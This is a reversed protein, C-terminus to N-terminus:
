AAVWVVASRGSATKRVEGSQVILGAQQLEIRRPRQSSGQLGLERQLEDDTRGDVGAAVIAALVQGRMTAATPRIAAAAALSTDHTTIM